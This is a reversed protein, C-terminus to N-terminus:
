RAAEEQIRRMRTAYAKFGHREWFRLGAPNDLNVNLLVKTLQREAFWADIADMMQGGVGRQRHTEAVLFQSIYGARTWEPKAPDEFVEFALGYGVPTEGEWALILLM